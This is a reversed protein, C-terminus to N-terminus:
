TRVAAYLLRFDVTERAVGVYYLYMYEALLHQLLFSLLSLLSRSNKPRLLLIMQLLLFHKCCTSRREAARENKWLIEKQISMPLKFLLSIFFFFFFFLFHYQRMFGTLDIFFFFSTNMRTPQRDLFKLWNEIIIGSQVSDDRNIEWCKINITTRAAASGKGQNLTHLLICTKREEKKWSFNPRSRHAYVRVYLVTYLLDPFSCCLKSSRSECTCSSM